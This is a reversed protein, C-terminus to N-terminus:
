LLSSIRSHCLWGRLRRCRGSRRFRDRNQVVHICTLLILNLSAQFPRVLPEKSIHACRHVNELDLRGVTNKLVGAIHKRKCLALIVANRRFILRLRAAKQIRSRIKIVIKGSIKLRLRHRDRLCFRIRVIIHRVIILLFDTRLDVIGLKINEHFLGSFITHADAEVREYPMLLRRVPQKFLVKVGLSVPHRRFHHIRSKLVIDFRHDAIDRQFFLFQSAVDNVAVVHGILIEVIVILLIFIVAIYFRIPILHIVGIILQIFVGSFILLDCFRYVDFARKRVRPLNQVAIPFFIHGQEIIVVIRIHYGIRDQLQDLVDILILHKAVPDAHLAM